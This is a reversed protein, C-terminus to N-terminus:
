LVPPLSTIADFLQGQPPTFGPLGLYINPDFNFVEAACVNGPVFAGPLNSVSCNRAASLPTESPSQTADRLSGYTRQLKIQQAVFAGNVTLQNACMNFIDTPSYPVTATACTYILGTGASGNSQAVYVGDLRTVSPAIYINGTVILYLSPANNPIWPSSNNFSISSMINVNGNVYITIRTPKTQGHTNCSTDGVPENHDDPRVNKGADIQPLAIDNINLNGTYYYTGNVTSWTHQLAVCGADTTSYPAQNYSLDLSAPAPTFTQGSSYSYLDPECQNTSGFNGIPSINSFTLGNPALVNQTVNQSSGFGSVAGLAFAAL